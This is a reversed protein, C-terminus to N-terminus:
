AGMARFANVTTEAGELWYPERQLPALQRRKWTRELWQHWHTQTRRPLMALHIVHSSLRQHKKVHPFWRTLSTKEFLENRGRTSSSNNDTLSLPPRRLRYSRIAIDTIPPPVVHTRAQFEYHRKATSSMNQKKIEPPIISRNEKITRNRLATLPPQLPNLVM